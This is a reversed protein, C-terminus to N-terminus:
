KELNYLVIRIKLIIVYKYKLPAQFVKTITDVEATTLSCRLQDLSRIFDLKTIVFQNHKDFQRMFELIQM